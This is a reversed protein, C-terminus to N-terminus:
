RFKFEYKLKVEEGTKISGMMAKPPEVNYETMDLAYEGTVTLGEGGNNVKGEFPILVHKTEGAITLDGFATGSFQSGSTKLDDVGQVEYTIESYDDAKLANYTKKDMLNKDSKIGKVNVTIEADEIGALTPSNFMTRTYGSIETVDMEWDHLNSTGEIQLTYDDLSMQKQNQAHLSMSSVVLATILGILGILGTLKTLNKNKM